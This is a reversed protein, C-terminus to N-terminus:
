QQHNNENLHARERIGALLAYLQGEPRSIDQPLEAGMRAYMSKLIPKGFASYQRATGPPCSFRRDDSYGASAPTRAALQNWGYDIRGHDGHARLQSSSDGAREFAQM